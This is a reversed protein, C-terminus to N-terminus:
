LFILRAYRDGSSGDATLTMGFLGLYNTYTSSSSGAYNATMCYNYTTNTAYEIRDGYYQANTSNTIKKPAFLYSGVGQIDDLRGSTASGTDLPISIASEYVTATLNDKAIKINANNFQVGDIWTYGNGYIDGLGFLKAFYYSSHSGNKGSTMGCTTLSSENGGWYSYYGRGCISQSNLTKYRLLFLVRILSWINWTMLGWGTGKNKAYTRHNSLSQYTTNCGAYSRAKSSTVYSRFAGVYLFDKEIGGTYHAYAEMGKIVKKNSITIDIYSDHVESKWYIKPYEIMIDYNTSVTTGDLLKSFNKKQVEGFIAGTTADLAVPRISKFPEVSEWDTIESSKGIYEVALASDSVGKNIRVIYKYNNGLQVVGRQSSSANEIGDAYGCVFQYNIQGSLDELPVEITKDKGFDTIDQVIFYNDETAEQNYQIYLKIYSATSPVDCNFILKFNTDDLITEHIRVGSYHFLNEVDKTIIADYHNCVSPNSYRIWTYLKNPQKNTPTIKLRIDYEPADLPYLVLRGNEVIAMSRAATGGNYKGPTIPTDITFFGEEISDIVVRDINQEKYLTVEQGVKLKALKETDTTNIINSSNTTIVLSTFDIQGISMENLGDFGDYYVDEGEFGEGVRDAAQQLKVIKKATDKSTNASGGSGGSGSSGDISRFMDRLGNNLNSLEITM